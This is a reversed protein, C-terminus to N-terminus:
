RSERREGVRVLAQAFLNSWGATLRADSVTSRLARAVAQLL